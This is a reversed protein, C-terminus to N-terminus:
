PRSKSAAENMKSINSIIAGYRQDVRLLSFAPDHELRPLSYGQALLRQVWELAEDRRHLAEFGCAAEYLVGPNEPALAAAQRLLPAGRSEDGIAAYFGGLDALLQPQKNQQIRREEALSIAKSFVARVQEPSKGTRAYMQALLGWSQYDTRDLETAKQYMRAAESYNGQDQLVHGLNVYRGAGPELSIAKELSTRAEALRDQQRYTIGLNNLARANDPTLSVAKRFQEVALDFRGENLYYLGFENALRWNDPDLEVAKRYAPEVEKARGERHYLEALAAYVEANRSNLSSADTLEQTALDNQGLQTYLMGLTVHATDLEHNLALARQAASRAPEVYGIDGSQWFQMFNARGLDAWAPAFQPDQAVVHQFLPIATKLAHPKYYHELLDRAKRYDERAAELPASKETPFLWHLVPRAAVVLGFVLAVLALLWAPPPRRKGNGEAADLLASIMEGASAYRKTQDDDIAKEVVRALKPPL